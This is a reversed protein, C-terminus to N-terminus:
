GYHCCVFWKEFSASRNILTQFEASHFIPDFYTSMMFLHVWWMWIKWVARWLNWKKGNTRTKEDDMRPCRLFESRTQPLVHSRSISSSRECNGRKHNKSLQLLEPVGTRSAHHVHGLFRHLLGALGTKQDSEGIYNDQSSWAYDDFKCLAGTERAMIRIWRPRNIHFFYMLIIAGQQFLRAFKPKPFLKPPM